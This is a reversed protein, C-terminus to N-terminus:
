VVVLLRGRDSLYCKKIMGGEYNGYEKGNEGEIHLPM